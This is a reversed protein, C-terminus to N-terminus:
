ACFDHGYATFCSWLRPSRHAAWDTRRYSLLLSTNLLLVNKGVSSPAGSPAMTGTTRVHLDRQPHLRVARHARCLVRRYVTVQAVSLSATDVTVARSVSRIASEDELAQLSYHPEQIFDDYSLFVPSLRSPQTQESM